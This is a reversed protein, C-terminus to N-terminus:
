ISNIMAIDKRGHFRHVGTIYGFYFSVFTYDGVTLSMSTPVPSSSAAPTAAPLPCVASARADRVLRGVLFNYAERINTATSTGKDGICKVSEVFGFPDIDL